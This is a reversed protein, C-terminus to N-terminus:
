LERPGMLRGLLGGLVTWPAGQGAQKGRTRDASQTQDKLRPGGEDELM